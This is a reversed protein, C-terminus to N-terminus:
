AQEGCCESCGAEKGEDRLELPLRPERRIVGRFFPELAEFREKALVAVPQGVICNWKKGIQKSNM